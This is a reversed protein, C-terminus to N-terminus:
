GCCFHVRMLDSWAYGSVGSDKAHAGSFVKENKGAFFVSTFGLLSGVLGQLVDWSSRHVSRGSTFNSEHMTWEIHKQSGLM